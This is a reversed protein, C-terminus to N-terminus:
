KSTYKLRVSGFSLRVILHGTVLVSLESDETVSCYTNSKEPISFDVNSIESVPKAASSFASGSRV